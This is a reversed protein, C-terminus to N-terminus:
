AATAFHGLAWAATAAAAAPDPASCGAGSTRRYATGDAFRRRPVAGCSLAATALSSNSSTAVAAAAAAQTVHDGTVDKKPILSFFLTGATVIGRQTGLCRGKHSTLEANARSACPVYYGWENTLMAVFYDSDAGHHDMAVRSHVCTGIIVMRIADATHSYRCGPCPGCVKLAQPLAVTLVKNSSARASLSPEVLKGHM